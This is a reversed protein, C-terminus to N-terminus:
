NEVAKVQMLPHCRYRRGSHVDTCLFYKQLRKEKRMSKGEHLFVSLLPLEELPTLNPPSENYKHLIRTLNIDLVDSSKMNELHKDLAAAIDQPLAPNQLLYERILCAYRTKWETGHGRFRCSVFAQLHAMEHLLTLAFQYANMDGNVTIHHVGNRFAYTGGAHKRPPVIKIRAPHKQLLEWISEQMGEPLYRKLIEKYGSMLRKIASLYYSKRNLPFAQSTRVTANEPDTPNARVTNEHRVRM